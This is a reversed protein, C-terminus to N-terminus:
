KKLISSEIGEALVLVDLADKGTVLPEAGRKCCSIFNKLELTIQDVKPVDHEILKPAELILAKPDPMFKQRVTRNLLDAEVTSHECEASFARLKNESVRNSEINAVIGNKFFIKVTAVDINKTKVRKGKAKFEKPPSAALKLALDLDHVMMDLVVSADTIRQPLPSERKMNIILLKDKKILNEAVTFAPNFREILGCSLVVGAEKAAKVIQEGQEATAAIPKEIFLHKGASIAQMSYEFHTSTPTAIVVADVDNLLSSFDPYSRTNYKAGAIEARIPDADYVGALTFGSLSSAIRAHNEGMFGIGAIGLRFKRKKKKENKPTMNSFISAM